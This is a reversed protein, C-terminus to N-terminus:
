IYKKLEPYKKLCGAGLPYAGMDGGEGEEAIIKEAEQDTVIHTAWFYRVYFKPNKVPKGCVICPYEVGRCKDSNKSYKDGDWGPLDEVKIM